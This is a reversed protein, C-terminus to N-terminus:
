NETKSMCKLVFFDKLCLVTISMLLLCKYVVKVSFYKKGGSALPITKHQKKTIM